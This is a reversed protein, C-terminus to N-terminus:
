RHYNLPRSVLWSDSAGRIGGGVQRTARWNNAVNAMVPDTLLSISAACDVPQWRLEICREICRHNTQVIKPRAEALLSPGGPLM